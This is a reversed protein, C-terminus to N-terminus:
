RGAGDDLSRVLSKFCEGREEYNKFMDFSSCAPSFLVVGGPSTLRHALAVADELTDALHTDTLSGLANCMREKAEGILILHGVREKVLGALPTYEGGKDKGGAILTIGSDFSELSKVVSGVNTGKSDEYWAVGNVERVFEMRHPLGAFAELAALAQGADCGMLLTSALAAMINDINHVGKLRFSATAFLEERGEWRYVISGNRYFIGQALEQRQSTPVVRAKMKGAYAAVLPDDMNLVAYDASTQNEFIRLKADIYEQYTAYRDLHDETINLLVAVQPRFDIIGELQFSSLEVVVRDVAEGSTVLEILPNGINGGVFTKFGCAAFIEGTLTTTTTKGNTGTIAVLPATLFRAALEIESIVTRRQAKALLLPKIDMPVGPSVVVLDAMLFSHREHRGLEYDIDLDALQEMLPALAAEDKMDTVTVRAGRAALFRAVAVGTRALGVVLIKKNLLEM